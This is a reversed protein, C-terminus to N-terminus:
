FQVISRYQVLQAPPAEQWNGCRVIDNNMKTNIMAGPVASIKINETNVEYNIQSANIRLISLATTYRTVWCLSHHSNEFASWFQM